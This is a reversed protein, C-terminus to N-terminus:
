GALDLTSREFLDEPAVRRTIIHQALAHDILQLITARNRQLGYPLPDSGTQELIRRYMEDVDNELIGQRLRAVYRQKAETFANFLAVAIDPSARLTEDKVVILHNIPYFGTKRLAELAWGDPNEILPVIDPDTAIAGVIAAIEGAKLMEVLSSGEPADIVNGPAQFDSVHEAGSRVWTVSDLDLGYEEQLVARAWVGTTVTYGRNVGVRKGSLQRPENIQSDRLVRIAKHHLGRVLFIPLATFRVGHERACLYTAFAMESVDYALRQVMRDFGKVLVPETAFRLPFGAPSITGDILARNAGQPRTLTLYAM